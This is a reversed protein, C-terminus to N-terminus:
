KEKKKQFCDKLFSFDCIVRREQMEMELKVKREEVKIVYKEKVFELVMRRFELEDKKIEVKQFYKEVLM